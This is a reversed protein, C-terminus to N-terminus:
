LCVIPPSARLSVVHKVRLGSSIFSLFACLGRPINSSPEGRERLSRDGSAEAEVQREGDCWGGRDAVDADRAQCWSSRGVAEITRAGVRPGDLLVFYLAACVVRARNYSIACWLM